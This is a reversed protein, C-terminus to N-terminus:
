VSTAGPPPNLYDVITPALGEPRILDLVKRSTGCKPNHWITIAARGRPQGKKQAKKSHANRAVKPMLDDEKEEGERHRTGPLAGAAHHRLPRGSGCRGM